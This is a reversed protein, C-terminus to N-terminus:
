FETRLEPGVYPHENVNELNSSHRLSVEFEVHRFVFKQDRGEWGGCCYEGGHERRHADWLADRMQVCAVAEQEENKKGRERLGSEM